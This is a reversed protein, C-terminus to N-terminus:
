KAVQFDISDRLRHTAFLPLAGGIGKKARMKLTSDKLPPTLGQSIADKIESAMVEGMGEQIVKVKIGKVTTNAKLVHQFEAMVRTLISSNRTTNRFPSRAPIVIRIGKGFGNSVTRGQEQIDMLESYTLSTGPHTGPICGFQLRTSALQKLQAQVKKLNDRQVKM